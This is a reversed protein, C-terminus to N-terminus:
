KFLGFEKNIRKKAISIYEENLEILIAKRKLHKSVIGTTGSGGFPDLVIGPKYDQTNCECNKHLGLDIKEKLSELIRKKTESPNQAKELINVMLM